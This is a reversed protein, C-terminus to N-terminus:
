RGKSGVIQIGLAWRWPLAHALQRQVGFPPENIAGDIGAVLPGPV